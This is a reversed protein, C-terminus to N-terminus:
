QPVCDLIAQAIAGGEAWLVQTNTGVTYDKPSCVFGTELLVAPCLNSRTVYFYNYFTGRAERGSATAVRSVLSEALPKGETYFWYCETGTMDTLDKNLLSSNHHVSIFFDPRQSNLAKLRDGLTVFTDDTRTMLVTAGLQELRFQAARAEALNMDKEQPFVESPAGIAGTDQDGHGPDLMVTIGELPKAPNESRKPRHKLIIRTGGEPTYEVHYGWLPDVPNFEFDLSFGHEQPEAKVTAGGFGFNAPLQGTFDASYFYLSLSNGNWEHIYLPTGLGNLSIVEDGNVTEWATGTFAANPTDPDMLQCDKARVFGGCQLQYVHTKKGGLTAAYSHAVEAVAGEYATMMISDSNNYQSLVSALPQTIRIKQGWLAPASGDPQPKGGGGGGGAGRRVTVTKTTSGQVVSYNNQGKNLPLLVGWVGTDGVFSVPVGNVTIDGGGPVSTGIVYIDDGWVTTGDAPNVIDLQAPVPKDLLPPLKDTSLYSLLIGVQSPDAAITDYSGLILGGAPDLQHVAALTGPAGDLRLLEPAKASYSTYTRAGMTSQRSMPSYLNLKYDRAVEELWPPISAGDFIQTGFNDTALLAVQLNRAKAEKLLLALPDFKKFFGDHETIKPAAAPMDEVKKSGRFLADSGVRGTLLVTNAGSAKVTDLMQTLYLTQEEQTHRQTFFDPWQSDLEVALINDLRRMDPGGTGRLLVIALAGFGVLAILALLCIILALWRRRKITANM